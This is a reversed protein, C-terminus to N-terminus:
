TVPIWATGAIGVVCVLFARFCFRLSPTERWKRRVESRGNKTLVMTVLGGFALTGGSGLVLKLFQMLLRPEKEPCDCTALPILWGLLFALAFLCCLCQFLLLFPAM